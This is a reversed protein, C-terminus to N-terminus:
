EFNPMPVECANHMDSIEKFAALAPNQRCVGSYYGFPLTAHSRLLCCPKHPCEMGYAFYVYIRHEM